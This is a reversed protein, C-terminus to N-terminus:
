VDGGTWEPLGALFEDGARSFRGGRKGVKKVGLVAAARLGVIGAAVMLVVAGLIGVGVMTDNNMFVIAMTGSGMAGLLLLWGIGIHLRRRAAHAACLGFEIQITKRTVLAVIILVLINCLLFAYVWPPNWYYKRKKRWAAPANCYVCRDPLVAGHEAVLNRGERYIGPGSGSTPAGESLRQLYAPKCGACVSRGFLEVLDSAPFEKQCEACRPAHAALEPPAGAEGVPRPDDFRLETQELPLWATMGERWVLTSRNILRERYLGNLDAESVPGRQEGGMAYYWNM